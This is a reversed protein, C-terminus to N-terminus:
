NKVLRVVSSRGTNDSLRVLYTGSALETTNLAITNEGVIMEVNSSSLVKGSLDIIMCLASTNMTSVLKLSANEFTPNPFLAVQNFLEQEQVDLCEDLTVVITDIITCNHEDVAEVVYEGAEMAAFVNYNNNVGNWTYSEYGNGAFLMVPVNYECATTDGGMDIVNVTVVVDSYCGLENSEILVASSGANAYGMTESNGGFQDGYGEYHFYWRNNWPSITFSAMDSVSGTFASVNELVNTSLNHRVIQGNNSSYLASFDIGDFELVGWDAWNESGYNDQNTVLGLDTVAYDDLDIVYAHGDNGSIIGVFGYGSLVISGYGAPIETDLPSIEAMLNLADDMTRIANITIDPNNYGPNDDEDTNWLTYLNGTSLDSFLGDRLPLSMQNGLDLADARVTNNDGVVYVYNPTIAIGGRDDGANMDHDVVMSDTVGISDVEFSFTTYLGAVYYTTTTNLNPTTIMIATDIVQTLAQDEFWVFTGGSNVSLEATGGPCAYTDAASPATKIRVSETSSTVCGIGDTATYTIQVTQGPSLASPNFQNGSVGAGSWTGGAPSGTLTMPSDTNCFTDETLSISALEQPTGFACYNYVLKCMLFLESCNGPDVNMTPSIFFDVQNDGMWTDILSADFTIITSDLGDCDNGSSYPGAAGINNADEDVVDNYESGDGFDGSYYVILQGDGWGGAPLSTFSFTFTEGYGTIDQQPSIASEYTQALTINTGGLM